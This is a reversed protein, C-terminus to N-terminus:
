RAPGGRRRTRPWFGAVHYPHHHNLNHPRSPWPPANIDPIQRRGPHHLRVCRCVLHFSRWPEQCVASELRRQEMPISRCGLCLRQHDPLLLALERQEDPRVAVARRALQGDASCHMRPDACCCWVLGNTTRSKSLTANRPARVIDREILRQLRGGARKHTSVFLM